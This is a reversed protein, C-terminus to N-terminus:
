RKMATWALSPYRNSKLQVRCMEVDAVVYARM